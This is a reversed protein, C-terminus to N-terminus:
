EANDGKISEAYDSVQEVIFRFNKKISAGGILFGDVDQMEIITDWNKESVSGGYLIQISDGVEKSVNERIWTRVIIHSEQIQEPTAVKGTKFTWVPEYVIVINSWDECKEKIAALQAGVVEETKEGDREPLDEGVCVLPRLGHKLAVAVKAAVDENSEFFLKRRESHGIIVLKIGYDKVQDASMEGTYPGNEFQSINQACISAFSENLLSKWLSLHLSTPAFFVEVEQTNYELTNMMNTIIDRIFAQDGNCKWNGGVLIRRKSEM